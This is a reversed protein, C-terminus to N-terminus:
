LTKLKEELEVLRKEEYELDAKHGEIAGKCNEIEEELDYIEEEREGCKECLVENSKPDTIGDNLDFWKGCRCKCPMEMEESLEVEEM